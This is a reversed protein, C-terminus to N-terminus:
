GVLQNRGGNKAEYLREDARQIMDEPTAIAGEAVCLGASVSVHGIPSVPHPIAANAVAEVLRQAVIRAEGQETDPFLVALEEGGYRYVHDGTRSERQLIAVIERLVEDGKQHGQSDNYTKFHDVDFLALAFPETSRNHIALM